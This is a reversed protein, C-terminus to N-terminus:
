WDLGVFLVLGEALELPCLILKNEFRDMSQLIVTQCLQPELEEQGTKIVHWGWLKNEFGLASFIEWSLKLIFLLKSCFRNSAYLDILVCGPLRRFRCQDLDMHGLCPFVFCFIVCCLWKDKWQEHGQNTRKLLAKIGTVMCFSYGQSLSFFWFSTKCPYKVCLYSLATTM